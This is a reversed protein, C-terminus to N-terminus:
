RPTYTPLLKGEADRRLSATPGIRGTEDREGHGLGPEAEEFARRPRVIQPQPTPPPTPQAPQVRPGPGPINPGFYGWPGPVGPQGLVVHEASLVTTGGLMLVAGLVARILANM